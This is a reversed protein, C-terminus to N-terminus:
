GGPVPFWAVMTCGNKKPPVDKYSPLFWSLSWWNRKNSPLFGVLGNLNEMAVPAPSRGEVVQTGLLSVGFMPANACACACFTHPQQCRIFYWSTKKLMKANFVSAVTRSGTHATYKPISGKWPNWHGGRNRYIIYIRM